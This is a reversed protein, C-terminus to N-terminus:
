TLKHIHKLQAVLWCLTRRELADWLAVLVIVIVSSRSYYWRRWCCRCPNMNSISRRRNQFLVVIIGTSDHVAVAIAIGKMRLISLRSQMQLFATIDRIIRLLELMGKSDHTGFYMSEIYLAREREEREQIFDFYKALYISDTTTNTCAFNFLTSLLLLVFITCLESFFFLYGSLWSWIIVAVSLFVFSIRLLLLLYVVKFSTAYRLLLLLPFLLLSSILLLSLLLLLLLLLLGLGRSYNSLLRSRWLLVLFISSKIM